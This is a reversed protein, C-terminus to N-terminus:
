GGPRWWGNWWPRRVVLSPRLPRPGSGGRPRTPPGWRDSRLDRRQGAPRSFTPLTRSVTSPAATEAVVPPRGTSRPFGSITNRCPEPRSLFRTAAGSGSSRGGRNRPGPRRDERGRLTPPFGERMSRSTRRSPPSGPPLLRNRPSGMQHAVRHATQDGHFGRGPVRADCGGQGHHSSGCRDGDMRGEQHGGLRAVVDGVLQQGRPAMSPAGM